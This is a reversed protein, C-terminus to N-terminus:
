PNGNLSEEVANISKKAAELLDRRATRSDSGPAFRAFEAREMCHRLQQVTESPVGKNLLKAIAEDVTLSAKPIQLKHQLYELLARSIESHYSAPNGQALLRSAQKLRKTAERGAKRFLLRPMNGYVKEMRKRYVLAGVFMLPPLIMSAYFWSSNTTSEGFWRFEGPSLKVFRIDEGLLRIDEKSAMSGGGALFEKGPTITLDFKPSRQTAYDNKAIDFYVFSMPEITRQGPNRPIMVYEAIKRGRIEAGDRSIEESIKPEYAELDAPLSPRPLSLLRLNGKGSVALKLTIADGSKGNKKDVLCSFSFSGVAGTFGPPPSPLPDVTLTLPNSKFEYDVTQMRNFFPDNFFMDFPDNSRRRAPVQVPCRLQIPEVKLKGSQTAFLATKKIIAVQYRKGEFDEASVPPQKPLEFDESWFGEYTPAKVVDYSTIAVNWYLKYLITVQEGQRARHKDAVARVFLKDELSLQQQHGNKAQPPQPKGQVVEFSLSNSKLTKRKYDVSASPITYKGTQRAYLTFSYTVSASSRGNIFQISTSQNPGTLVVFQGFDPQRFNAIGNADQASVTFMVEFQESIGVKTQSASATFTAEQAQLGAFLLILLLGALLLARSLTQRGLIDM